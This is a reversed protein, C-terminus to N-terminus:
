VLTSLLEQARAPKRTGDRAVRLRRSGQFFNSWGSGQVRFGDGSLMIGFPGALNNVSEVFPRINAKSPFQIDITPFWSHGNADTVMSMQLSACFRYFDM